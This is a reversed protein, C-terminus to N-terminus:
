EGVRFTGVIEEMAKLAEKDNGIFGLHFVYFRDADKFIVATRPENDDPGVSVYEKGMINGAKFPLSQTGAADTFGLLKALDDLGTDPKEYVMLGLLRFDDPKTEETYDINDKNSWFVSGGRKLKQGDLATETLDTEAEDTFVHWDAPYRVEYGYPGNDYSQWQATTATEDTGPDKYEISAPQSSLQKRSGLLRWQRAVLLVLAACLLGLIALNKTTLSRPLQNPTEEM